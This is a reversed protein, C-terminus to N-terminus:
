FDSLKSCDTYRVVKYLILRVDEKFVENVNIEENNLDLIPRRCFKNWCVKFYNTDSFGNELAIPIIDPRNNNNVIQIIKLIRIGNKMDPLNSLFRRKMKRQLSKETTHFKGAIESTTYKYHSNKWLFSVIKKILQYEDADKRSGM